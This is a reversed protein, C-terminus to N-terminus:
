IHHQDNGMREIGESQPESPYYLHRSFRLFRSPRLGVKVRGRKWIVTCRGLM